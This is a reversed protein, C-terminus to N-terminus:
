DQNQKLGVVMLLFSETSKAADVHKKEEWLKLKKINIVLKIEIEKGRIGM